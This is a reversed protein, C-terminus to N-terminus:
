IFLRAIRLTTFDYEKKKSDLYTKVPSLKDDEMKSFADSIIKQDKKPLMIHKFSVDVGSEKIKELHSIITIDALGRINAVEDISKEEKILEYSIIHTPKKNENAVRKEKQVVSLSGGSSLIFDEQTKQIKEKTLESVRKETASSIKQFQEDLVRVTPDSHLAKDSFGVLHVGSLKRVRSLAVYGMGYTFTKSLDIVAADLSMGQSKHVTIAWAHRLPIQSISAVERGEDDVIWHEYSLRIEKNNLTQVIPMGDEFDIVTGRTGNVYGKDFNNKVFMVETGIKLCLTEPSLCSKKLSEVVSNKGRSTMEYRMEEGPLLSLERTNIQDVDQNHTFLKTTTQFTEEDYIVMRSSLLEQHTEDITNTRIANLIGTFVDDDQRHQETLYCVALNMNKWASSDTVFKVQSEGKSIPPLQFLDGSLIIQMGGFPVEPNRKLARCLRDFTDLFVGSLMSIEDIIVVKTKEYREFLYRKSEMQDIEYDSLFEKIGIGSWAHITMGHMHTAAIGTSATVAVSVDHEKLYKIYANLVYTKGSGAGGTLFVNHGMKLITLVSEQTMTHLQVMFIFSGM